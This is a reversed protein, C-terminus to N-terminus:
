LALTVPEFGTAGVLSSLGGSFATKEKKYGVLDRYLQQMALIASNIKSTRYTNNIRDYSIGEPFVFNQIQMKRNFTAKNWMSPLNLCLDLYKNTQKELNSLDIKCNEINEEVVRKEEKFKLVFKDFLEKNIAETIYKEELNEIKKNIETLQTKFLRENEKNTESKIIVTRIFQNKIGELYPKLISFEKLFDMFMSNLTKASRNCKCGIKNCKYYFLGKKKVVYGSFPTDCDGCRLFTKLPTNEFEVKFKIGQRKKNENIRLFLEESILKEHKGQVVKGQLLNHRIIGCYFPNRLIETIQQHSVKVGAAQLREMIEYNNVNEDAKWHFAKKLIKGTENVTISQERHKTIQDYGLPAKQTWYGQNLKEIMGAVCKQRRQENDFKSFILQVEQQMQGAASSTDIPQTVANVKINRKRLGDIISIANAGSRSFRDVSYILIQSISDKNKALHTLMRNFEKREDNKASESTGGFFEVITLNNKLAYEEIAKRQTELSYGQEQEKSSVRTYAVAMANNTIQSASKQKKAFPLFNDINKM